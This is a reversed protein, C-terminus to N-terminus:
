VHSFPIYLLYNQARTPIVVGRSSFQIDVKENFYLVGLPLIPALKSYRFLYRCYRAHDDRSLESRQPRAESLGAPVIGLRRSNSSILVSGEREKGDENWRVSSIGWARLMAGDSQPTRVTVSQSKIFFSNACCSNASM